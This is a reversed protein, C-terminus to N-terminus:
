KYQTRRGTEFLIDGARKKTRAHESKRHEEGRKNDTDYPCRQSNYVDCEINTRTYATYIATCM